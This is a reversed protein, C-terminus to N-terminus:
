PSDKIDKLIQQILQPLEEELRDVQKQLEARDGGSEALEEIATVTETLGEVKLLKVSSKLSHAESRVLHMDGTHMGDRIKQLAVPADETFVQLIQVVFDRNGRSMQEVLSTDYAIRKM